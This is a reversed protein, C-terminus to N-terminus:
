QGRLSERSHTLRLLTNHHKWLLAEQITTSYVSTWCLTDRLSSLESIAWHRIFGNMASLQVTQNYRLHFSPDRHITRKALEAFPQLGTAAHASHDTTWVVCTWPGEARQRTFIPLLSAINTHCHTVVIRTVNSHLSSCDNRKINRKIKMLGFSYNIEKL